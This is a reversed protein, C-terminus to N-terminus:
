VSGPSITSQQRTCRRTILDITITILGPRSLGGMGLHTPAVLVLAPAYVLVGRSASAGYGHNPVTLQALSITSM